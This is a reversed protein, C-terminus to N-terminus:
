QMGLRLPIVFGGTVNLGNRHRVPNQIENFLLALGCLRLAPVNARDRIIEIEIFHTFMVANADDPDPIAYPVHHLFVGADAVAM